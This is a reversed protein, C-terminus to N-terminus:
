NDDWGDLLSKLGAPTDSVVTDGAAAAPAPAAARKDVVDTVDDAAAAAPPAKPKPPAKPAPPKAPTVPEQTIVLQGDEVLQEETWGAELMQELTFGDAKDTMTKVTRMEVAAPKPAAKPKPPAKPATAKPAVAEEMAAAQAAMTAAQKDKVAQAAAEAEAAEAAASASVGDAAPAAAPAAAGMVGDEHGAGNVINGIDDAQDTMVGKAAMAEDPNLWRAASFLLKPYAMRLDFKVRTEVMATHKAGRARLMDLYQDWAYWGKAENEGNDKDWISTQALKLLMAPQTGIKACPIVAVRKFPACATSQKGNETIKSGKVANPCSACTAACPEKVSADPKVGDSSYCKPSANKGEEYNGEFFSRSRQKNHDLIVVSVISLPEEEGSDANVRTLQTEEGQVVRRWVKGRYSLQNITFRPAINGEGFAEALHDPIAVAGTTGISDFPIINSM